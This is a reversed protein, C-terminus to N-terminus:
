VGAPCFTQGVQGVFWVIVRHIPLGLLLIVEGHPGQGSLWYSDLSLSRIKRKQVKVLPTTRIHCALFHFSKVMLTFLLKLLNVQLSSLLLLCSFVISVNIHCPYSDVGVALFANSTRSVTFKFALSWPEFSYYKPALCDLIFRILRDFALTHLSKATHM